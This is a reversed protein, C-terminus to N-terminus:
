PTVFSSRGPNFFINTELGARWCPGLSEAMIRRTAIELTHTFRRMYTQHESPGHKAIVEDAIWVPRGDHLEIYQAIEEPLAELEEWTMTEPLDPPAVYPISM